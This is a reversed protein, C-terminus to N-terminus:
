VDKGGLCRISRRFEKIEDAMKNIAHATVIDSEADKLRVEFVNKEAEKQSRLSWVIYALLVLTFFSWAATASLQGLREADSILHAIIDAIAKVITEM